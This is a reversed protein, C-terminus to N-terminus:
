GDSDTKSTIVIVRHGEADMREEHLSEINIEGGETTWVVHNNCNAEDGDDSCSIEIEEHLFVNDDEGTILTTIREDGQTHIVFHRGCDGDDEEDCTIQVHNRIMHVEGIPDHDFGLEILEGDVYIEIEDLTRLIDIVEGSETEITKVEGVGLSSIDTTGLSFSDTEIKIVMKEENEAQVPSTALMTIVSLALIAKSCHKM